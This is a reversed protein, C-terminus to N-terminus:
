LARFRRGKLLLIPKDLNFRAFGARIKRPIRAPPIPIMPVTEYHEPTEYHERLPETPYQITAVYSAPSRQGCAVLPASQLGCSGYCYFWTKLLGDLLCCM